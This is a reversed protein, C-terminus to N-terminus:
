STTKKRNRFEKLEDLSMKDLEYSKEAFAKRTIIDNEILLEILTAIALTNRYDVEKLNSLQNVIDIQKM